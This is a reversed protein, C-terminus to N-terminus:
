NYEDYDVDDGNGVGVPDYMGDMYDENMDAMDYAEREIEAAEGMEEMYDDMFVDLNGDTVNANTKRLKTEYQKISDVFDREDDYNKAVYTRLGKQLGKNWVGLKNIKLINDAEREDETMEKLRDTTRYKEFESVKFVRDMVYEYKKDVMDKNEKMISMYTYLLEATKKMYKQKNNEVEEDYMEDPVETVVTEEKTERDELDEVTYVDYLATMKPATVEMYTNNDQAVTVYENFVLLLFHEILLENTRKDFISYTERDKHKIKAYYPIEKMLTLLQECSTKVSDLIVDLKDGSYFVRLKSYYTRIMNKINMEHHSSIDWYKPMSNNEYNVQNMIINPFVKVFLEMYNKSFQIFNYMPDDGISHKALQEDSQEKITVLYEWLNNLGKKQERKLNMNNKIFELVSQKLESNRGALFNKLNRMESTDEETNMGLSGLTAELNAKFQQSVIRTRIDDPTQDILQDMVDRLGTIPSTLKTTDFRLQVMNRRNIIQLLRLLSENTYNRGDRKLKIIKEAMSDNKSLFDPKSMCITLLDESIPILSQFKCLVIFARYITEENFENSLTPYKNKDNERSFLYGAQSLHNVDELINSLDRVVKNYLTIESDEMTFYHLTNNAGSIENCCSNELFPEGNSNALLLRKKTVIRQIREQISLSFFIIKSQVVHISENQSSLGSRLQSQLKTKFEASINELGKIHFERLPPLFERWKMLDYQQPIDTIDNNVMYDMKEQVKRVVDPLGLLTKQVIEKIKASIYDQKKRLLVNWPPIEANRIQYATCAIYNVASDDGQGEMPFGTFSRVCGPFTKRTKIPPISTQIGIIIMGLTLYLLSTHYLDKYSPLTKGKKEASKVDENHKKESPMITSLGSLVGNIIFERQDSLNIGIASTVANIVNSIMRVEPSEQKQKEGFVLKDGADQEMVERSKVKYGDEYGEENDLDKSVIKYGSHKDVWADGDDSEKGITHTLENVLSNYGSYNNIFCSAMEGIFTPLLKVNSTICYLWHPDEKDGFPGMGDLAERTFKQVFRIIDTQKKIFDTQGLILDRLKAYPSVVVDPEEGSEGLKYQKMNYKILSSYENDVLKDYVSFNYEVQKTLDTIIKQQSEEYKEDFESLILKLNNGVLEKKNISLTECKDIKQVCNAQINCLADDSSVFSNGDITEDLVWNNNLRKYYKIQMANEYLFAYDGEQVRKIGNILTEAMIEADVDSLKLKQKVSSTLFVIFEDANMTAMEKDYNDILSYNTTDYEKDYYVNENNNDQELKQLEYYKKAIRYTVCTNQDQDLALKNQDRDGKLISTMNDSIMFKSSSLALSSNFVRGYDKNVIKKLLESNTMGDPLYKEMTVTSLESHPTTQFINKIINVTPSFVTTQRIHRLKNMLSRRESFYKNYKLVEDYLFSNMDKYQFYTLDDTYVLFPELSEVIDVVSMKGTIYRKMMNFIVKTKPVISKLFEQYLQLKLEAVTMNKDSRLKDYKEQEEESLQLIYQKIDNIFADEDLDIENEPNDVFIKNLKTNEKLIKWYCLVLTNLNSKDLINTGPLSLRSYRIIPEPLMLFSKLEMEDPRTLYVREAIMRSSTIKSAALRKLGLNYKTIVFRRSEVEKNNVVTSYLNDLNDIIVNFNDHVEKESIIESSYEPNTKEFPTFYPNLDSMMTIYKNQEDPNEGSKYSNLISVIGALNENTNLMVVDNNETDTDQENYIKKINKVVPILWYLSQKFKELNNVLPKWKAGKIIFGDINGNSDMTSFNTRLQKFREIMNHIETLVKKTRNANPITSLMEDLLDNAQMEISYRKREERVNVYQTIPALEESGFVIDDEQLIFERIQTKVAERPVQVAADSEEEQINDTDSQPQDEPLVAIIRPGERIEGSELDSDTSKQQQEQEGQEEQEGEQQQHEGEQQQQDEGEQQQDQEGKEEQEEQEGQKIPADRIEITEIPIDLPIGNYNFNIYITQNDPYTKIEIMDDELNTIEGTLITPVDGGFYINVWKGPLLNNQRAYGVKDSRSIVGISNITSNELVGNEDRTLNIVDLSETDILRIRTKDIYDIIFTKENLSVNEPDYIKIVDGLQLSIINNEQTEDSM